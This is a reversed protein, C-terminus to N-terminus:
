WIVLDFGMWRAQRKNEVNVKSTPCNITIKRKIKVDDFVVVVVMFINGMFLFLLTIELRKIRRMWGVSTHLHMCIIIWINTQFFQIPGLHFHYFGYFQM